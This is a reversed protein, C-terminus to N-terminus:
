AKLWLSQDVALERGGERALTEKCEREESSRNERVRRGEPRRGGLLM